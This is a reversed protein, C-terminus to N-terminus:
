SINYAGSAKQVTPGVRGEPIDAVLLGSRNCDRAGNVMARRMQIIM